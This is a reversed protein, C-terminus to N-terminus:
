FVSSEMFALELAPMEQITPEAGLNPITLTFLFENGDIPFAADTWWGNADRSAATVTQAGVTGIVPDEIVDIALSMAPYAGGNLNLLVLPRVSHLTVRM